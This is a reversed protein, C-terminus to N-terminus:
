LRLAATLVGAGGVVIFWVGVLRCAKTSALAPVPPLVWLGGRAQEAQRDAVGWVNTALCVGVAVVLAFLVATAPRAVSRNIQSYIMIGLVCPFLIAQIRTWANWHM